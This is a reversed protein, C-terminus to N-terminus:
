SKRIVGVIDTGRSLREGRISRLLQEGVKVSRGDDRDRHRQKMRRENGIVVTGTGYSEM